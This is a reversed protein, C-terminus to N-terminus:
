LKELHLESMGQGNHIWSRVYYEVSSIIVADDYEVNPVDSTKCTFRAQEQHVSVHGGAEVPVTEDDFIGSITSQSVGRAKRYTASVAFEATNFLASLDDELPLAM